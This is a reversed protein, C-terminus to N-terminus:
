VNFEERYPSRALALAAAQEIRQTPTLACPQTFLQAIDPHRELVDDGLLIRVNAYLCMEHESNFGLAYASAAVNRIWAWRALADQGGFVEPFAKHLHGHLSIWIARLRVEDLLAVQRECLGYPQAALSRPQAGRRVHHHWANSIADPLVVQEMPGFFDASATDEAHKLLAHMVAPDAVRLWVKQGHPYQADLLTRLHTIVEFASAHSFILYGWEEASHALYHSLGPTSPGKLTILCPSVPNCSVLPTNAYLLQFDPAAFWDLLRVRLNKVSIGDLLLYANGQWPLDPPLTDPTLM